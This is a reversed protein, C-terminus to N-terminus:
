ELVDLTYTGFPCHRESRLCESESMVPQIACTGSKPDFGVQVDEFRVPTGDELGLRERVQDPHTSVFSRAYQECFKQDKRIRADQLFNMASLGLLVVGAFCLGHELRFRRKATERFVKAWNRIGM